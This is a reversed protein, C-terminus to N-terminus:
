GIQAAVLQKLDSMLRDFHSRDLQLLVHLGQIIRRIPADSIGPGVCGSVLLRICRIAPSNPLDSAAVFVELQQERRRHGLAM